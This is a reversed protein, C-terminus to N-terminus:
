ITKKQAVLYGSLCFGSGMSKVANTSHIKNVTIRLIGVEWGWIPPVFASKFLRERSTSGGLFM